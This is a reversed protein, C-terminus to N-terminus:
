LLVSKDKVEKWSVIGGERVVRIREKERAARDIFDACDEMEAQRISESM